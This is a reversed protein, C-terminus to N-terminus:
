RDYSRQSFETEHNTHVALSGVHMTDGEFRMVDLVGAGLEESHTEPDEPTVYTAEYFPADELDDLDENQLYDQMVAITQDNYQDGEPASNLKGSYTDLAVGMATEPETIIKDEIRDHTFDQYAPAYVVTDGNVAAIIEATGYFDDISKGEYLTWENSEIDGKFSQFGTNELESALEDQDSDYTLTQIGFPHDIHGLIDETEMDLVDYDLKPLPGTSDGTDKPMSKSMQRPFTITVTNAYAKRRDVTPKHVANKKYLEGEDIVSNFINSADGEIRTQRGQSTNGNDSCGALGAAIVPVGAKLIDRRSQSTPYEM